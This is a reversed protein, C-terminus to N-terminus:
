ILIEQVPLHECPFNEKRQDQCAERGSRVYSEANETDELDKSHVIHTPDQGESRSNPIEMNYHTLRQKEPNNSHVEIPDLCVRKESCYVLV